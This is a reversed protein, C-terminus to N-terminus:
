VGALGRLARVRGYHQGEYTFEPDTEIETIGNETFPLQYLSEHFKTKRHGIEKDVRYQNYREKVKELPMVLEHGLRIYEPDKIFAEIPNTARRAREAFSRFAPPLLRLTSMPDITGTLRNWEHYALIEKRLLSGLRIAIFSSINGQRPNVPKNMYVGALRRTVQGQGNKFKEPFANGIWFHQAKWKLVLPEKNKVSYSGMEGSVSTQWEEQVVKLSDSVENCFIVRANGNMAVASMGFEEQMNSSLIGTLHPPWFNQQAKMITSKGCGGVGQLFFTMEHTDLEGVDFFLRGKLAYLMFMDHSTFEQCKYIHDIERADCDRWTRGTHVRFLRGNRSRVHSFCDFQIGDLHLSMEHDTLVARRARAPHLLPVWAMGNGDVVYCTADIPAEGEVDLLHPSIGDFRGDELARRLEHHNDLRRWAGMHSQRQKETVPQWSLGWVDAEFETGIKSDLLDGLDLLAGVSSRDPCEYPDAERWMQGLKSIENLEYMTNHTFCADIHNVCVEDPKPPVAKDAVHRIGLRERRDNAVDADMQWDWERWYPFFFDGRIDYVGAGRGVEDGEFSRYRMTEVLNPFGPIDQKTLIEVIYDHTSRTDNIKEFMRADNHISAKQHIFAEITSEEVFARTDFGSRTRRPVFIKDGSRRNDRKCLHDLTFRYVCDIHVKTNNRDYDLITTPATMSTSRSSFGDVRDFIDNLETLVAISHKLKEGCEGHLDGGEDGDNVICWARLYMIVKIEEQYRTKFDHATCSPDLRMRQFAWQIIHFPSDEQYLWRRHMQDVLRKVVRQEPVDEVTAM